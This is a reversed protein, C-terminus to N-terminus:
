RPAAGRPAGWGFQDEIQGDIRVKASRWFSTLMLAAVSFSFSMSSTSVSVIM